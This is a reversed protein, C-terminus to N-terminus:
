VNGIEKDMERFAKSADKPIRMRLAQNLTRPSDPVPKSLKLNLKLGTRKPKDQNPIPMPQTLWGNLRMQSLWSVVEDIKSVLTWRSSWDLSSMCPGKTPKHEYVCHEESIALTNYLSNNVKYPRIVEPSRRRNGCPKSTKGKGTTDQIPKVEKGHFPISRPTREQKKQKQMSRMWKELKERNEKSRM